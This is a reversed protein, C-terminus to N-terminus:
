GFMLDPHPEGAERARLIAYIALGAILVLNAWMPDAFLNMADLRAVGFLRGVRLAATPLGAVVYTLLFVAGFAAARRRRSDDSIVALAATWAPLLFVFTHPHTHFTMLPMLACFLGYVLALRVAEPLAHRGCLVFWAVPLLAVYIMVTAANTATQVRGLAPDHDGLGLLRATASNLGDALHGSPVPWIHRVQRFSVGEANQAPVVIAKVLEVPSMRQGIGVIGVMCIATAAGVIVARRSGRLLLLPAFIIPIAKTLTALVLASWAAAHKGRAAAWWAATILLMELLESHAAVSFAYALYWYCLWLSLAALVGLMRFRGIRSASLSLGFAAAAVPINALAFFRITFLRPWANVLWREMVTLPGYMIGTGDWSQIRYMVAYFDGGFGLRSEYIFGELLTFRLGWVAMGGLLLAM